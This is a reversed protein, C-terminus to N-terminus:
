LPAWSLRTMYSSSLLKEEEEVLSQLLDSSFESSSLTELIHVSPRVLLFAALEFLFTLM